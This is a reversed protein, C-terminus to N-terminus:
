LQNLGWPTQAELRSSASLIDVVVGAFLLFNRFSFHRCLSSPPDHSKAVLTIVLTFM